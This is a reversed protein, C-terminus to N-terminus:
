KETNPTPAGDTSKPASPKPEDTTKPAANLAAQRERYILISRLSSVAREL